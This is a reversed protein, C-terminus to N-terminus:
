DTEALEGAWEAEETKSRKHEPRGTQRETQGEKQRDTTTACWCKVRWERLRQSAFNVFLHWQSLDIFGQYTFLAATSQIRFEGRNKVAMPYSDAPPAQDPKPKAPRGAGTRPGKRAEDWDDRAANLRQSDAVAGGRDPHVHRSVKKFANSPAADPSDRSINLVLSHLRALSLLVM